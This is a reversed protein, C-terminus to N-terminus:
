VESQAPANDQGTPAHQLRNTERSKRERLQSTAMGSILKFEGMTTTQITIRKGDPQRITMRVTNKPVPTYDQKIVKM